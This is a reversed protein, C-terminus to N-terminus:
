GARLPDLGIRFVVTDNRRYYRRSVDERCLKMRLLALAASQDQQTVEEVENRITVVNDPGANSVTDFQMVNPCAGGLCSSGTEDDEAHCYIYQYDVEEDLNNLLIEVDRDQKWLASDYEAQTTVAYPSESDGDEIDDLDYIWFNGCSNKHIDM